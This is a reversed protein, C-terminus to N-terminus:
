PFAPPAGAMAQIERVLEPNDTKFTPLFKGFNCATHDDGGQFAATKDQLLRLVAQVVMYHEKTFGEIHAKLAMPDAIGLADIKKSLEVAQNNAERWANWAPIFQQWLDAEQPTKPLAEYAKWAKEYDERSKQLNAYQRQRAEKTLAPIALTRMSGRIDQAENSLLLLNEM